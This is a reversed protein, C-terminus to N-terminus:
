EFTRQLGVLISGQTGNAASGGATGYVGYQDGVALQLDATTQLGLQYSATFRLEYISRTGAGLSLASTNGYEFYADGTLLPTFAHSFSLSGTIATQSFGVTGPANAVVTQQTRNVALSLTDRSWQTSTSVSFRRERFLGSQVGLANNTLQVPVGASTSIPIGSFSVTSGSVGGALSQLQSGLTESYSAALTTRAGVPVTIDVYPANFGDRHQYRAVLRSRPGPQADIGVSWTADRIRTPPVGAYQLDEYGGSAELFAHRMFAYRVTDAVYLQSAGNLVGSGTEQSAEVSVQDDFRLFFPESTFSAYETQGFVDDPRFYPQNAGNVYAVQGSRVTYSARYTLNVTGLGPLERQFVPSIQYSQSTTSNSKTVIGNSGPLTGGATSQVTAFARANLTLENPSLVATAAADLDQNIRDDYSRRAYLYISPRYALSIRTAESNRTILVSPAIRTIFDNSPLAQDNYGGVVAEESIRIAPVIALGTPPAGAPAVYPSAAAGNGTQGSLFSRGGLGGANGFVPAGGGSVPGVLAGTLLDQGTSTASTVSGSKASEVGGSTGGSAAGGSPNGSAATGGGASGDAVAGTPDAAHAVPVAAVCLCALTQAARRQIRRSLFLRPLSRQHSMHRGFAQHQLRRAVAM